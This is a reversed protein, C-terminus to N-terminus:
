LIRRGYQPNYNKNNQNRHFLLHSQCYDKDRLNKNRVTSCLLFFLQCVKYPSYLFRGVKVWEGLTGSRLGKMTPLKQWFDKRYFQPPLEDWNEPHKLDETIPSDPRVPRDELENLTSEFHPTSTAQQPSLSAFTSDLVNNM